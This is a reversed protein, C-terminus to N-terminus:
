FSHRIYEESIKSLYLVRRNSIFKRPIRNVREFQDDGVFITSTKTIGEQVIAESSLIYIRDFYYCAESLKGSIMENLDTTSIVNLDHYYVLPVKIENNLLYYRNPDDSYLIVLDDDGVIEDIKQMGKSFELAERGRFQFSTFVLSITVIAIIMAYAVIKLRSDTFLRGLYLGVFLFSYPILESILYRAYYYHYQIAVKKITIGSWFLLLLFLLWPLYHNEWKKMNIISVLLLIAGIPTLYQIFVIIISYRISKIGHGAIGWRWHLGSDVFSDTFVFLYARYLSVLLSLIFLFLLIAHIHTFIKFRPRIVKKYLLSLLFVATVSVAPILMNKLTIFLHIKNFFIKHFYPYSFIYGYLMSLIWLAVVSFCYLLLQKKIVSCKHYNVYTSMWILIFFPVYLFGTIRTVFFCFLLGASLMLYLPEIRKQKALNLYKVLCYFGSSTFALAVVETVPFKSFFAHLPNVTLLIAVVFASIKKNGSIEYALFAMSMISIISFLTLSYTRRESGIIKGAIAMWLPHLPYFQFLYQSRSLDHIFIGNVHRGQLKPNVTPDELAMQNYEDYVAILDSSLKQRIKDSIFVSGSREYAASANVYIGQDQGGKTYPYPALRLILAIIIILIFFIGM